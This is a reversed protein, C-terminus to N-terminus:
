AQGEIEAFSSFPGKEVATKAVQSASGGRQQIIPINHLENKRSKQLNEVARKTASALAVDGYELFMLAKFLKDPNTLVDHYEGKEYKDLVKQSVTPAIKQGM